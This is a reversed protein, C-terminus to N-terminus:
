NISLYVFSTTQDNVPFTLTHIFCAHKESQEERVQLWVNWCWQPRDSPVVLTVLLNLEVHTNCKTWVHFLVSTLCLVTPPLSIEKLACAYIWWCVILPWFTPFLVCQGKRKDNNGGVATQQATFHVFYWVVWLLAPYLYNFPKKFSIYFVFLTKQQWTSLAM